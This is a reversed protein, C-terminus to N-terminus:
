LEMIKWPLSKEASHCYLIFDTIKQHTDEAPLWLMILKRREFYNKQKKLPLVRILTSLLGVPQFLIIDVGFLWSPLLCIIVVHVKLMSAVVQSCVLHLLCWKLQYVHFYIINLRIWNHFLAYLPSIYLCSLSIVLLLWIHIIEERDKSQIKVVRYQLLWTQLFDAHFWDNEKVYM